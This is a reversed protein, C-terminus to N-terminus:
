KTTNSQRRCVYRENKEEGEFYALEGPICSLFTGYGQGVINDLADSLLMERRDLDTNSSIVHCIPPAGMYELIRLIGAPAQQSSEVKPCYRPDLDHFHNLSSLLRKRGRKDSLLEAYCRTKNSLAFAQFLTKETEM